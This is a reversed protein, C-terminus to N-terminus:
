ARALGHPCVQLLACGDCLPRRAKCVKRGHEILRIGFSSWHERPIVACLDREIRDAQRNQTLGLRQSIRTVHTDVVMGPVGFAEALVLNATKRGVGPLAVLEEMTDPVEGDHRRVLADCLGRLARAKSRYFGTSHIDAELQSQPASAYDAASRYKRFLAPTVQNVRADTCQASLVTAVLLELPTTHRLACRAQEYDRALLTLIRRVRPREEPPRGRALSPRTTPTM